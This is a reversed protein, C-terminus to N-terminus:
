VICVSLAIIRVFPSLCSTMIHVYGVQRSWRDHVFCISLCEWHYKWRFAKIEQRLAERSTAFLVKILRSSILRFSSLATFTIVGFESHLGIVVIEIISYYYSSRMGMTHSASYSFPRLIHMDFTHTRVSTRMLKSCHEYTIPCWLTNGHYISVIKSQIPIDPSSLSLSISLLLLSVKSYIGKRFSFHTLLYSTAWAIHRRVLPTHLGHEFSPRSVFCLSTKTM